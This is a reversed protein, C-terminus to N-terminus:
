LLQSHFLSIFVHTLARRFFTVPFFRMVFCRDLLLLCHLNTRKRWRVMVSFLSAEERFDEKMGADSRCSCSTMMPIPFSSGPLLTFCSTTVERLFLAGDTRLAVCVCVGVSGM